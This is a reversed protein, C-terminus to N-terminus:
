RVVVFAAGLWIGLRLLVTRRQEAPWTYVTGLAFGAMTVGIWPVLPYAAFVMHGSYDMVVGPAHLIRWLPHASRVGDLLNHGAIMVVGIAAIARIPLWVGAALAILAWGVAWLVLRM